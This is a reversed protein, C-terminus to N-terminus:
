QDSVTLLSSVPKPSSTTQSLTTTAEPSFYQCGLFTKLIDQAFLSKVTEVM